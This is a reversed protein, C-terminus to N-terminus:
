SIEVGMRYMTEISITEVSHDAYAHQKSVTATVDRSSCRLHSIYSGTCVCSSKCTGRNTLRHLKPFVKTWTKEIQRYLVRGSPASIREPQFDAAMVHANIYIISASRRRCQLSASIPYRIGSAQFPKACSILQGTATQMLATGLVACIIVANSGEAPSYRADLKKATFLSLFFLFYILEAEKRKRSNFEAM